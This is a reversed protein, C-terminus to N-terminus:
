RCLRRVISEHEPFSASMQDAQAMEFDQFDFGPAVTCGVLGHDGGAKVESAFWSGAPIVLQFVEGQLVDAGLHHETYRGDPAIEHIIIADGTYFHWLEDSLIRHFASFNGQTLLFYISTCFSRAGVFGEPLADVPITGQSRYVEKYWGGEPHPLMQLQQAWFTASQKMM